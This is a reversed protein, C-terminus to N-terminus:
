TGNSNTAVSPRRPEPVSLSSARARNAASAGYQRLMLQSRWGALRMLSSGQAVTPRGLSGRELVRDGQCEVRVTTEIHRLVEAVEDAHNM